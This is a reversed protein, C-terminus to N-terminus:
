KARRTEAQRILEQLPREDLSSLALDADDLRLHRTVQNPVAVCFLGAAKAARVGHASDEFAIAESPQVRLRHLAEVYLDPAPKTARVDEACVIAHFRGGLGFRALHGEVWARESSSAVSLRLGLDDAEDLLSQVGPLLTEQSLLQDERAQRRHRLAERDVPRGLHRELLDYPAPPDAASGLFSAWEAAPVSLGVDRYIEDWSLRLPMETDLILGDFDLILARIM